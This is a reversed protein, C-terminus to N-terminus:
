REVKREAAYTTHVHALNLASLQQLVERSRHSHIDIPQIAAHNRGADMECTGSHQQTHMKCNFMGAWAANTRADSHAALVRGDIKHTALIRCLM